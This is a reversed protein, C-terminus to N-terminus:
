WTKGERASCMDIVMSAKLARGRPCAFSSLRLWVEGRISKPLCAVFGSGFRACPGRPGHSGDGDQYRTLAIPTLTSQFSPSTQANHTNFQADPITTESVYRLRLGKECVHEFTLVIRVEDVRLAHFM